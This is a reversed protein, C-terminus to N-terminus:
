ADRPSPSTYLLCAEARASRGDASLATVRLTTEGTEVLISPLSDSMEVWGNELAAQSRVAAAEAMLDEADYLADERDEGSLNGARERATAARRELNDAAQNLLGSVTDRLDAFAESEATVEFDRGAESVAMTGVPELTRDAVLRGKLYLNLDDAIPMRFEHTEGVLGPDALVTEMLRTSNLPTYLSFLARLERRDRVEPFQERVADQLVRGYSGRRLSDESGDGEPDVLDGSLQVPLVLQNVTFAPLAQMTISGVLLLLIAVAIGVASLGAVRFRMEARYRKPLRESVTQRLKPLDASDTM